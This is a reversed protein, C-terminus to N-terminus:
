RARGHLSDRFEDLRPPAVVAGAQAVRATLQAVVRHRRARRGPGREEAVQQGPLALRVDTDQEVVGGLVGLPQARRRERAGGHRADVGRPAAGFEGAVDQVGLAADQHGLPGM